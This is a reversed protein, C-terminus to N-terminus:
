ELSRIHGAGSVKQTVNAPHGKYKIDGAGSIRAQLDEVAWVTAHGAGSINVDARTAKLAAADLGGAGSLKLTFQETTGTASATGAGSLTMSLAKVNLERLHATGAGSLKVTLANGVFKATRVTGAGSVTITSLQPVTLTYEIKTKPHISTRGPSRLALTHGRMETELLPLINDDARVTLSPVLGQAITLEGTGALAVESVDGLAREETAPVGSGIVTPRSVGLAVLAGIGLASTYLFLKFARRIM